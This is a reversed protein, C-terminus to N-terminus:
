CKAVDAMKIVICVVNGPSKLFDVLWFYKKGPWQVTKATAAVVVVLCKIFIYFFFAM